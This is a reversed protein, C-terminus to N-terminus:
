SQVTVFTIGQARETEDYLVSFVYRAGRRDTGALWIDRMGPSGRSFASERGLLERVETRSGDVLVTPPDRIIDVAMCYRDFSDAGSQRWAEPSFGTGCYGLARSSEDIKQSVITGGVGVLIGALATLFIALALLQGSLGPPRRGSPPRTSSNM